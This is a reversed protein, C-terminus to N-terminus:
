KRKLLAIAESIAMNREAKKLTGKPHKKNVLVNAQALLSHKHKNEGHAPPDIYKRGQTGDRKFVIRFRRGDKTQHYEVGERFEEYGGILGGGMRHAHAYTKYSM